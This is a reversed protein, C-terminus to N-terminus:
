PMELPLFQNTFEVCIKIEVFGMLFFPDNM